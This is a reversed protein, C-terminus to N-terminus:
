AAVKTRERKNFDVPTLYVSYVTKVHIQAGVTSERREGSIRVM